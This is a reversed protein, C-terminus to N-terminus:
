YYSRYTGTLLPFPRAKPTQGFVKTEGKKTIPTCDYIFLTDPITWKQELDEVESADFQCENFYVNKLMRLVFLKEIDRIATNYVKLAALSPAKAIHAMTYWNEDDIGRMIIRLEFNPSWNIGQLVAVDDDNLLFNKTLICLIELRSEVARFVPELNGLRRPWECFGSKSIVIELNRLSPFCGRNIVPTLWRSYDSLPIRERWLLHLPLDLSITRLAPFKHTAQLELVRELSCERLTLCRLEPARTLNKLLSGLDCDTSAREWM